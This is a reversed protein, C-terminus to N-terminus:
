VPEAAREADPIWYSAVLFQLLAAARLEASRAGELDNIWGNFAGFMLNMSMEAVIEPQHSPRVLGARQFSQILSVIHAEAERTFRAGTETAMTARHADAALSRGIKPAQLFAQYADRFFIESELPERQAREAMTALFTLLEELFDEAIAHLLRDKTKFHNHVTVSSVDAHEAIERITTGGFGKRNFLDMAALYIQRRTRRTKRERRGVNAEVSM